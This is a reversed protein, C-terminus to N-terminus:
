PSPQSSKRCKSSNLQTWRLIDFLCINAHCWKDYSPLPLWPAWSTGQTLSTLWPHELCLQLPCRFNPPVPPPYSSPFPMMVAESQFFLASVPSVPFIGPPLTSLRLSQRPARSSVGQACLGGPPPKRVHLDREAPGPAAESSGPNGPVSVTGRSCHCSHTKRLLKTNPM